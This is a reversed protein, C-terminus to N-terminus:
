KIMWKKTLYYDTQKKPNKCMPVQQYGDNMLRDYNNTKTEFIKGYHNTNKGGAGNGKNVNVIEMM